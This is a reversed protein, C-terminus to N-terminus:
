FFFRQPNRTVPTLRTGSVNGRHESQFLLKVPWIGIQMRLSVSAALVRCRFRVILVDLISLVSGARLVAEM